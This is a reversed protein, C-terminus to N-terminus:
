GFKRLTEPPGLVAFAVITLGFFVTVIWIGYKSAVPNSSTNLRDITWGGIGFLVGALFWTYIAAAGEIFFSRIGRFAGEVVLSPLESFKIQDEAFTIFVINLPFLAGTVFSSAVGFGLGLALWLLISGSEDANDRMHYIALPTVLTAAIAGTITTILGPTFALHKAEDFQGTRAMISILIAASGLAGGYLAISVTLRIRLVNNHIRLPSLSLATM